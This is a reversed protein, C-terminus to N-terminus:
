GRVTKIVLWGLIGAAPIALLMLLWPNLFGTALGAGLTVLVLVVAVIAAVAKNKRFGILCGIIEVAMIGLIVLWHAGQGGLGNKDLWSVGKDVVSSGSSGSSGSKLTHFTKEEGYGTIGSVGVAKFYYTTDSKLKDLYLSYDVSDTVTGVMRVGEEYDHTTGYEFGVAPNLANGLSVITGNLTVDSSGINTAEYTKV